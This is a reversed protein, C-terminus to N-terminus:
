VLISGAGIVLIIGALIIFEVWYKSFFGLSEEQEEINLTGIDNRNSATQGPELISFHITQASTPSDKAFVKVTQEGSALDPKGQIIWEGNEDVLTTYQTIACCFEAVIEKGKEGTGSIILQEGLSFYIASDSSTYTQTAGAITVIHVSSEENEICEAKKPCTDEDCETEQVTCHTGEECIKEDCSEDEVKEEEETTFSSESSRTMNDAGDATKIRFYYKKEADLGSLYASHATTPKEELPSSAIYAGSSTGYEVQGVGAESSIWSIVASEATVKSTSIHSITPAETDEETDADANTNENTNTNTNTNSNVNTSVTNKQTVTLTGTIKNTDPGSYVSSYYTFTGAKSATFTVSASKGGPIATNVGFASIAFGHDVDASTVNVVVTDGEDVTMVSPSFSSQKVTINFTKTAAYANTPFFIVFFFLFISSLSLVFSKRMLQHYAM